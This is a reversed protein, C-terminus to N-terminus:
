VAEALEPWQEEPVHDILLVAYLDFWADWVESHMTKGGPKDKFFLDLIEHIHKMANWCEEGVWTQLSKKTNDRSGMNYYPEAEIFYKESMVECVDTAQQPSRMNMTVTIFFMNVVSRMMAHLLDPIFDWLDMPM